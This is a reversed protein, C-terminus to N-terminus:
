EGPHGRIQAKADELFALNWVIALSFRIVLHM